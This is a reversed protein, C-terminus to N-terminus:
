IKPDRTPLITHVYTRLPASHFHLIKKLNLYEFSKVLDHWIFERSHL